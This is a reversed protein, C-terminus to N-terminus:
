LLDVFRRDGRRHLQTGLVGLAVTWALAAAVAVEDFPEEVLATRVLALVGTFPNLRVVDALDGLVDLPYIVPTAYLLVLLGAQVIFKVDRFWVQLASTVLCLSLVLALLLLAAPVVLLTRVGCHGRLVTVPVVVAATVLFGVLNALVPALVLAARPFWIKDTLGAGDVIATTASNVTLAVYSWVLMGTLVHSLYDLDEVAFRAFRSFVVIIVAAQLLPLAVAWLVGLSARKYRVKFDKAALARVVDHHAVLDRLWRWTSPPRADLELVADHGAAVAM